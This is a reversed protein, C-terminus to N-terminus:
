QGAGDSVLRVLSRSFVRARAADPLTDMHTAIRLVDNRAVRREDYRYKTLWYLPEPDRPYRQSLRELLNEGETRRGDNLYAVALLTAAQRGLRHDRADRELATITTAYDGQRYAAQALALYAQRRRGPDTVTRVAQELLPRADAVRGEDLAIRGLLLPALRSRGAM